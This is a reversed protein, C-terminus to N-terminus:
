FLNDFSVREFIELAGGRTANKINKGIKKTFDNAYRFATLAENSNGKLLKENKDPTKYFHAGEEEPRDNFTMDVGLLYIEEFGMYLAIQLVDYIVTNGCYIGKEIDLSFEPNGIEYIKGQFEYITDSSWTIGSDYFHRIFKIGELNDIFKWDKQVILYDVAVYYDPRWNTYEYALYIRNVGFCIEEEQYLQELDEYRLSPGNGIIFCRKGKHINKFSILRKNNLSFREKYILNIDIIRNEGYKKKLNSLHTNSLECTVIVSAIDEIEESLTDLFQISGNCKENLDDYILNAIPDRSVLYLKEYQKLNLKDVIDRVNEYYGMQMYPSKYFRSTTNKKLIRGIADAYFYSTIFINYHDARELYEQLSIISIGEIRSGTKQSDSDIVAIINQKGLFRIVGICNIGAGYLYVKEM